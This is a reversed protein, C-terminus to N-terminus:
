VEFLTATEDLEYQVLVAVALFAVHQKEESHRFTGNIIQFKCIRGFVTEQRLKARTKFKALEESDDGGYLMLKKYGAYASDAIGLKGELIKQELPVYPEKIGVKAFLENDVDMLDGNYISSDHLGGRFPGGIHVIQQRNIAVAVEWKLAASGCKHSCYRKDKSYRPHQVEYRKQDKGDVSCVVIPGNPDNLSEHWYIKTEYLAAIKRVWKWVRDGQGYDPSLDFAQGTCRANIPYVKCFYNAIIFSRFGQDTLDATDLKADKIETTILDAWVTAIVTPSSGYHSGFAKVRTSEKVGARFTIRLLDLGLQLVEGVTLIGIAVM